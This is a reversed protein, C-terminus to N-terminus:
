RVFFLIHTFVTHASENKLGLFWVFYFSLACFLAQARASNIWKPSTSVPAEDVPMPQPDSAPAIHPTKVSPSNAPPQGPPAGYTQYDFRDAADTIESDSFGNQVLVQRADYYSLVKVKSDKLLSVAQDVRDM